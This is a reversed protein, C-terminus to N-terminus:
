SKKNAKNSFYFLDNTDIIQLVIQKNSNWILFLQEENLIFLWVPHQRPSILINLAVSLPTSSMIKPNNLQVTLEAQRSELNMKM